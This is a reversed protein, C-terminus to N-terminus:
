KQKMRAQKEAYSYRCGCYDQRYLHYSATLERARDAGKKKKFDSYFYRCRAHQRELEAGIRNLVISNKQASITMITAFYDFGHQEAYHYGEEMRFRYCHFCRESGEPLHAYPALKKSYSEEDYLPFICDVHYHSNAEFAQLFRILEEKRRQYENAPFINSNQYYLTVHFYPCLFELPFTSCPGCCAHLLIRPKQGSARIEDLIKLSLNYYHLKEM